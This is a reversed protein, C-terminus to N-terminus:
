RDNEGGFIRENAFDDDDPRETGIGDAGIIMEVAASDAGLTRALDEAATRRATRALDLIREALAAGSGRWAADEITLGVLAGTPAVAVSVEGDSETTAAAPDHELASTRAQIEDLKASFGALWEDPSPPSPTSTM